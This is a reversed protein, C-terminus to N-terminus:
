QAFGEVQWFIIFQAGKNSARSWSATPKTALTTHPGYPMRSREVDSKLFLEIVYTRIYYLYTTTQYRTDPRVM